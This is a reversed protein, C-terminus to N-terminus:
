VWGETRMNGTICIPFNGKEKNINNEKEKLKVDVPVYM